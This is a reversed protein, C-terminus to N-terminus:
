GGSRVGLTYLVTTGAPNTAKVMTVAHELGGITLTDGVQPTPMASSAPMLVKRDGRLVTTLDIEKAPFDLVVASASYLVPALAQTGTSLDYAGSPETRRLTVVQGKDAILKSVTRQLATYFSM